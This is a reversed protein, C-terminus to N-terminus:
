ENTLQLLSRRWGDRKGVMATKWFKVTRNAAALAPPSWATASATTPLPSARSPRANRPHSINPRTQQHGIIKPVQDSYRGENFLPASKTFFTQQGDDLTQPPSQHIGRTQQHYQKLAVGRLNQSLIPALEGRLLGKLDM